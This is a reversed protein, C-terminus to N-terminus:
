YKGWREMFEVEYAKELDITKFDQEIRDTDNGYEEILMAMVDGKVCDEIDSEQETICLICMFVENNRELFLNERRNCKCCSISEFSLYKSIAKM